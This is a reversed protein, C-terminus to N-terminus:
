VFGSHVGQVIVLDIDALSLRVERAPRRGGEIVHEQYRESVRGGPGRGAPLGLDVEVDRGDEAVHDAPHVM